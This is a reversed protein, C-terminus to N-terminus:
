AAADAIGALMRRHNILEVSLAYQHCEDPSRASLPPLPLRPKLPGEALWDRVAAAIFEERTGPSPLNNAATVSCTWIAFTQPWARSAREIVEVLEDRQESM